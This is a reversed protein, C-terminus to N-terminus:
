PLEESPQASLALDRMDAAAQKRGDPRRDYRATTEPRAHGVFEQVTVLDQGAACHAEVGQLSM